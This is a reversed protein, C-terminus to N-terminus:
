HIALPVRVLPQECQTAPIQGVERV